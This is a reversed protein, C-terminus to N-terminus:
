RSVEKMFLNKRTFIAIASVALFAIGMWILATISASLSSGGFLITYIGKGYYYGPLWPALARYFAPLLLTPLIIGCSIIQILLFLAALGEGAIGFFYVFMQIFLALIFFVLSMFFWLTGISVSLHVGYAAIIIWLGIPFIIAASANAIQHVLFTKWRSGIPNKQLANYQILIMLIAAVFTTLFIELPLVANLEGKANHIKIIKAKVAKEHSLQSNLKDTIQGATQNMISKVTPPVAENIDFELQKTQMLNKPFVMVMQEDGNNMQAIAKKKNRVTKVKFPLAKKLQGAAQEGIPSGNTVVAISLQDTNDTMAQIPPVLILLMILQVLIPVILGAILHKRKFM